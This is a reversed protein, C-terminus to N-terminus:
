VDELALVSEGINLFRLYEDSIDEPHGRRVLEGKHLWIAETCLDQITGLAHSVIIITRAEDCLERMKAFSKEKFAADGASLAEDILLIDPDMNISVAFALRGYMGSSYTRMPLDIFDGLDAFDTIMDYKDQIEDMQMGAALCGLMINERGSLMGNFGVGLALLTSLRGNVTIRGETPSLIGAMARMLTSKGAGNAGVLGLVTGHPVDFSVDKVAEVVRVGKKSKHRSGWKTVAGRITPNAEYVARYRIWVNEVKVALDSDYPL